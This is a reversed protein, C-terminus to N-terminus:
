ARGRGSGARGALPQRDRRPGARPPRSARPPSRRRGDAVHAPDGADGRGARVPRRRRRGPSFPTGPTSTAACPSPPSTSARPGSTPRWRRRDLNRLAAKQVGLSPSGPTCPHDAVGSGTVLVTGTRQELLTPLAARVATLLGATGVALDALLEAATLDRPGPRARFARRTSTCSTSRGTHEVMRRSPTRSRRPTRSTADRAWGVRRRGAATVEDALAKVTEERPLGARHRLRRPRFPARQVPRSRPRRRHRHRSPKSVDRLRSATASM